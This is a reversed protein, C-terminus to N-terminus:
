RGLGVLEHGAAPRKTVILPGDRRPGVVQGGLHALVQQADRVGRCGLARVAGVLVGVNHQADLVEVGIGVRWM